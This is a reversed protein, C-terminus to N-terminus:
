HRSAIINQKPDFSALFFQDMFEVWVLCAFAVVIPLLFCFLTAAVKSVVVRPFAATLEGWDRFTRVYGATVLRPVEGCVLGSNEEASKYNRRAGM